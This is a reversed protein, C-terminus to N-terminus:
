EVFELLHFNKKETDVFWLQDPGAKGLIIYEASMGFDRKGLDISTVPGVNRDKIVCLNIKNPDSDLAYSLVIRDGHQLSCFKNDGAPLRLPQRMREEFYYITGRPSSFWLYATRDEPLKYIKCSHFANFTDDWGLLRPQSWTGKKIDFDITWVRFAGAEVKRVEIWIFRLIGPSIEVVDLTDLSSQGPAIFTSLSTISADDEVRYVTIEFEQPVSASYVILYWTGDESLCADSHYMFYELYPTRWTTFEDNKNRLAIAQDGNGGISWEMLMDEEPSLYIHKPSSIQAAPDPHGDINMPQPVPIKRLWRTTPDIICLEGQTTEHRVDNKDYYSYANGGLGRLAYLIGADSFKCEENEFLVGPACRPFDPMHWTEVERLKAKGNHASMPFSELAPMTPKFLEPNTSMLYSGNAQKQPIKSMAPKTSEQKCSCLFITSLVACLIVSNKM